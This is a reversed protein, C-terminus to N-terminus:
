FTKSPGGNPLIALDHSFIDVTDQRHTVIYVQIPDRGVNGVGLGWKLLLFVM